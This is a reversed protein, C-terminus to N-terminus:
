FGWGQNVRESVNASYMYNKHRKPLGDQYLCHFIIVIMIILEKIAECVNGRSQTLHLIPTYYHKATLPWPSLMSVIDWYESPLFMITRQFDQVFRPEHRVNASRCRRELWQVVDKESIHWM